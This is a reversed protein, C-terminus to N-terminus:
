MNKKNEVATAAPYIYVYEDTIKIKVNCVKKIEDLKELIKKRFDRQRLYNEAGFIKELEEWNKQIYKQKVNARFTQYSIYVYVDIALPSDLFEIIRLDVPMVNQIANFFKESIILYDDEGINKEDLWSIRTKECVVCSSIIDIKKESKKELHITTTALARLQKKVSEITRGDRNLKVKKLFENLNKGLYIKRSQNKKAESILFFLLIRAYKGFPIGFKPHASLSLVYDNTEKVFTNEDVKSYPISLQALEVITFGIEGAERASRTKIDQILALKRESPSKEKTKAAKEM